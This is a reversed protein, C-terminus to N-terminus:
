HEQAMGQQWQLVRNRGAHKAAYLAQDARDILAAADAIDPTLLAVGFSSTVKVNQQSRIGKGAREEIESRLREAITAAQAIDVEPLIICFEEGGYRCLLDCERLGSFLSRSVVQLVQDGTAHGFRDNLSKFHDIDTMICCLGKGTRAPLMLGEVKEFFARRNLCGTLPDRTALRRLEENQREIQAKSEAIQEVSHMLERNLRDVETIDRFTVICGRPHRQGDFIPACNITAKLPEGGRQPFEVYEGKVSNRSAMARMWPYDAPDGPLAAKLGPVDQVTRALLSGGGGEVWSRLVSNALMIRGGADVVIVGEAFADFAQRVREPIVASPDLHALVRRLYLSFMVFGGAGLVLTLLVIPEFVVGRWGDARSPEFSLEIDGWHRQNMDLPVRVHDITSQGAPPPTWHRMHEGVQVALSGDARRVAISRLSRERLLAQSMTDSLARTDGRELTATMQIALNESIRSRLQQQAARQDPILGFVLDLGLLCSIMLACLGMSVRVAPPIRSLRFSRLLPISPMLMM